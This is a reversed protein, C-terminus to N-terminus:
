IPSSHRDDVGRADLAACVINVCQPDTGNAFARNAGGDTVGPLADIGHGANRIALNATITTASSAVHIGNVGSEATVNRSIDSDSLPGDGTTAVAIADGEAAVVVNGRVINGVSPLEPIFNALRIGDHRVRRVLNGDVLNARGAEVSIGFGGCDPGCGVTDLVTNGTVRNGSGIIIIGDGSASVRNNAITNRDADELTIGAEENGVLTSGQVHNDAAGATLYVGIHNRRATIGDIRTGTSSGVFIGNRANDTVHIASIRNSGSDSVSIGRDYGRITGNTVTIGRRGSIRIGSDRGTTAPTGDGAVAHGNLNVVIGDAAVVLGDGTCGVLDTRLTVSTTVTAGCMLQDSAAVAPATLLMTSAVAAALTFAHGAFRNRTM